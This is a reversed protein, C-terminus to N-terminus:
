SPITLNQFRVGIDDGGGIIGEDVDEEDAELLKDEKPGQRSNTL